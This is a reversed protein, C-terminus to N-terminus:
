DNGNSLNRKKKSRNNPIQFPIAPKTGLSVRHSPPETSHSGDGGRRGKYKVREAIPTLPPEM